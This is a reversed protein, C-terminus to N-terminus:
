PKAERFGACLVKGKDGVIHPKPFGHFGFPKGCVCLKTLEVRREDRAARKRPTM